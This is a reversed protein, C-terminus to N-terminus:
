PPTAASCDTPLTCSGCATANRGATAFATGACTCLEGRVGCSCIRCISAASLVRATCFAEDIQGSGGGGGGAGLAFDTTSQATFPCTSKTAVIAGNVAIACDTATSQVIVGHSFAGSIPITVSSAELDASTFPKYRFKSSIIAFRFGDSATSNQMYYSDNLSPRIWFGCTFPPTLGRLATDSTSLYSQFPISAAAAGEMKNTTDNVVAGGTATALLNRTTTGELNARTGSAEDLMWAALMSSVWSPATPVTAATGAVIAPGCGGQAPGCRVRAPQASALAAVLLAAVSVARWM